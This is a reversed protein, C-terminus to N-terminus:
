GAPRTGGTPAIRADPRSGSLTISFVGTSEGGALEAPLNIRREGHVTVDVFGAAMVAALYEQRPLAGAVCGVYLAAQGAWAAPAPGDLVVDSITFRGRPKLVRFVEAFARAKDPVLNLVCNSIVVDVTADPVPLDEIEGLRFEVNTHGLQRANAQAKAVMEPVLDVGIVRGAAGVLSQAVFADNGAGSGLDLVTSGPAIGAVATPVGCGLGLDAQRVHGPQNEYSVAFDFGAGPDCCGPGCGCGTGAALAIEGYKRKVIQKIDSESNM